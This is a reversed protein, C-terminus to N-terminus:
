EGVYTEGDGDRREVGPRPGMANETPKVPATKGAKSPRTEPKPRPAQEDKKEDTM